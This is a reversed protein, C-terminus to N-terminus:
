EIGIAIIDYTVGTGSGSNAVKLLHHTSDVTYGAAPAVILLMGGPKVVAYGTADDLFAQFANSAAGGVQVDNANTPSAYILLAKLATLVISGGFADTLAQLDLSETASAALTREDDWIVDAQGSGSGNPLSFSKSYQVPHSETAGPLNLTKVLNALATVSLSCNSLSLSM